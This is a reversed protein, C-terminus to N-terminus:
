SSLEIEHIFKLKRNRWYESVVLLKEAEQSVVIKRDGSEMNAVKFLKESARRTNLERARCVKVVQWLPQNSISM